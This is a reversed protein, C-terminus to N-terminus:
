TTGPFPLTLNAVMGSQSLITGGNLTLANSGAYDLDTSTDGPQVTYRFTAKDAASMSVFAAIRDQSGTEILLNPTGTVTVPTSFTITVDIAQNLAFVGDTVASDVNTVIPVAGDAVSLLGSGTGVLGSPRTVEIDWSGTAIGTLDFSCTLQTESVFNVSSGTVPTNGSSVLRITTGQRFNTGAITAASLVGTNRAIAPEISTVTPVPSFITLIGAATAVKGDPNTLVMDWTGTAAGILAFSCVMSTLGQINSITGTVPPEGANILKVITENKFGDGSITVTTTQEDNPVVNPTIRSIQPSVEGLKVSKELLVIKKQVLEQIGDVTKTPNAPLLATADSGEDLDADTLRTGTQYLKKFPKDAEILEDIRAMGWSNLDQVAFPCSVMVTFTALTGPSAPLELQYPEDKRLTISAIEQGAVSFLCEIEPIQFAPNDQFISQSAVLVNITGAYDVSNRKSDQSYKVATFEVATNCKAYIEFDGHYVLSMSVISGNVNVPTELSQLNSNTQTAITFSALGQNYGVTYSFTSSSPARRATRIVTNTDGMQARMNQPGKELPVNSSFYESAGLGDKLLNIYYLRLGDDFVLSMLTEDNLESFKPKLNLELPLAGAPVPTFSAPPFDGIDSVLESALSAISAEEGLNQKSRLFFDLDAVKQAVAKVMRTKSVEPLAKEFVFFDLDHGQEKVKADFLLAMATTDLGFTPTAIAQEYSLIATIRKGGSDNALDFRYFSVAPVLLPLRVDAEGSKVYNIIEQKEESSFETLPQPPTYLPDNDDDALDIIRCSVAFIMSTLLFLCLFRNRM